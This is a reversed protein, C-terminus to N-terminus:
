SNQERLIENSVEKADVVYNYTSWFEPNLQRPDELTVFWPKPVVVRPNGTKSLFAGWWGFTSNSLVYGAGRRM